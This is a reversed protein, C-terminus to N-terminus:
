ATPAITLHQQAGSHLNLNYLTHDIWCRRYIVRVWARALVGVAHPHDCGRGLVRQYVDAPCPSAHRSNDAFTVM